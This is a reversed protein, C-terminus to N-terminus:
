KSFLFPDLRTGQVVVRGRQLHPVQLLALLDVVEVGREGLLVSREGLLATTGRM